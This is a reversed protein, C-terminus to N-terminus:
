YVHKLKQNGISCVRQFSVFISGSEKLNCDLIVTFIGVKVINEAPVQKCEFSGRTARYSMLHLRWSCKLVNGTVAAVQVCQVVSAFCWKVNGYGATGTFYDSEQDFQVVADINPRSIGVILRGNVDGPPHFVETSIDDLQQLFHATLLPHLSVHPGTFNITRSM